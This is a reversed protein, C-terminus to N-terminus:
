LLIPTARRRNNDRTVAEIAVGAFGVAVLLVLASSVAHPLVPNLVISAVHAILAAPVWRPTVRARLLAVALLLEGLYFGAIWGYLFITLGQDHVIDELRPGRLGGHLAIARFFVILMSYGATGLFGVALVVTGVMALGRGRREFLSMVAPLGLTLAVAAIFFIVAAALWRGDQTRAVQLTDSTSGGAPMLLSGFTLAMAGTVFAAASAPIWDLRM